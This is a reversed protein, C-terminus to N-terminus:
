AANQRRGVQKASLRQLYGAIARAARRPNGPSSIMEDYFDGPDYSKWDIEM